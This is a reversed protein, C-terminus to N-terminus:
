LDKWLSLENTLAKRIYESPRLNHQRAVRHLMAKTEVTLRTQRIVMRNKAPGRDVPELPREVSYIDKDFNIENIISMRILESKNMYINKRLLNDIQDDMEPTMHFTITKGETANQKSRPRGRNKKKYEAEEHLIEEATLM